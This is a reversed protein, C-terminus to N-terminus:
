PDGDKMNQITGFCMVEPGRAPSVYYISVPTLTMGDTMLAITMVEANDDPFSFAYTLM